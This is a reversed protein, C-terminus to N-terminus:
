RIVLSPLGSDELLKSLFEFSVAGERLLKPQDDSLDIVSSSVIQALISARRPSTGLLRKKAFNTSADIPLLEM